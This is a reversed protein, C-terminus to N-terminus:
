GGQNIAAVDTGDNSMEEGNKVEYNRAKRKTDDYRKVEHMEMRMKRLDETDKIASGLEAKKM